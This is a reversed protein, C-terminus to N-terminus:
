WGSVTELLIDETVKDIATTIAARRPAPDAGIDYEGWATFTKEYVTKKLKQDRFVAQVGITIRARQVAEGAAVVTPLDTFTAIAGELECDASVQDTAELSNDQRFRDILRNTVQERLAPEGSGTLDDFLAIRITRLHPPVSSGTFSYSCGGLAAVAALSALAALVALAPVFPAAADILANRKL